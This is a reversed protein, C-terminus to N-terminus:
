TTTAFRLLGIPVVIATSFTRWPRLRFTARRGVTVDVCCNATYMIVIEAPRTAVALQLEAAAAAAATPKGSRFRRSSATISQNCQGNNFTM